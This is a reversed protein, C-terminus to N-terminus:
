PVVYHLATGMEGAIWVDRASSGWIARLRHTTPSQVSSWTAGNYHLITGSDGAAWINNAATGWIARLPQLTGVRVDSWATGNWHRAVGSGVLWVDNAGSGWVGYYYDGANQVEQTFGAGTWHFVLRGALHVDTASSGWVAYLDSAPSTMTGQTIGMASVDTWATGDWHLATDAGVSWVDNDARGWVVVPQAAPTPDTVATATTGMLSLIVGMGTLGSGNPPVTVGVAFGASSGGGVSRLTDVTTGGSVWMSGNYYRLTQPGVMYVASASTGWVGYLDVSAGVNVTQWTGPTGPSGGDTPNGGTDTGTGNGADTGTPMGSDTGTGTTNGGGCSAVALVLWGGFM